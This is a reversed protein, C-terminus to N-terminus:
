RRRAKPLFSSVYLVALGGLIWPAYQLLASASGLAPAAAKAIAGAADTAAQYTAQFPAKFYDSATPTGQASVQAFRGEIQKQLSSASDAANKYAAQATAYPAHGNQFAAIQALASNYPGSTWARVASTLDSAGDRANMSSDASKLINAWRTLETAWGQSEGFQPIPALGFFSEVGAVGPLKQAMDEVMNFASKVAPTAAPPVYPAVVDAGATFLGAARSEISTVENEVKAILGDFLGM